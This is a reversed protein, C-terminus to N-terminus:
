NLSTNKVEASPLYFITTIIEFFFSFERGPPESPLADAQLKPSSPEIGPDPLDGPSPFPLGSWYEQRFGMSPPAQYAITWLTVFLQVCSLSKKRESKEFILLQVLQKRNSPVFSFSQSIECNESCILNM